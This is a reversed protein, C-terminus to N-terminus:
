ELVCDVNDFFSARRRVKKWETWRPACKLFPYGLRWRGFFFFEGFGAKTGCHLPRYVVGTWFTESQSSSPTFVRPESDRFIKSTRIVLETRQLPENQYISSISGRVVFDSTCFAYILERDTCPRCESFSQSQLLELDYKMQFVEKKLSEVPAQAEIFFAVQGWVSRFCRQSNDFDSHKHKQLLHLKKNGELYLNAGSSNAMIKLCGQFERNSHGMRLVVRLAGRPYEWRVDGEKCRLYVPQVGTNTSSAGELGSGFWDCEDSIRRPFNSAAASCFSFLCLFLLIMFPRHRRSRACYLEM